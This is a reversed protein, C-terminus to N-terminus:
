IELGFNGRFIVRRQQLLEPADHHAGQRTMIQEVLCDLFHIKEGEGRFNGGYNGKIEKEEKKKTRSLICNM